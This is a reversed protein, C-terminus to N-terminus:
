FLGYSGDINKLSSVRICLIMNKNILIHRTRVAQPTLGTGVAVDKAGVGTELAVGATTSFITFFAGDLGEGVLIGGSTM